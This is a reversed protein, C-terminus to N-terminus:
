VADESIVLDAERYLCVHDKFGKWITKLLPTQIDHGPVALNVQEVIQMDACTRMHELTASANNVRLKCVQLPDVHKCEGATPVYDNQEYIDLIAALFLLSSYLLQM